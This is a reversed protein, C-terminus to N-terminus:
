ELALLTGVVNEGAIRELRVRGTKNALWASAAGGAVGGAAPGRPVVVRIYNDTLGPWFEAEPDEFLVRMERGLYGARWEHWRRKSFRRLLASRQQRVPVPVADGRRAAPTGERESYTFVHVYALPLTELFARTEEFEEATEGPFAVMVDTGLCLEPVAGTARRAFEAYQAATCPRRMDRLIRECGSQLPLHLHPLLPHAPSAMRELLADDVTTPEISGIRLREVGATDALADVVEALRRGGSNYTGINVGTLVLERVGRSVLSRAEALLDDFDRSRAPGRAKPILCFSCGFACGDQVKLSARKEFAGGGAFPIKFNSSATGAAAAGTGARKGTQGIVIRPVASKAGTGIHALLDQKADNGLILDVGAIRALAEAGTQSYCGVVAVFAAPSAAVVQRISQRCKAEALRTVSCTNIVALDAPAGFPVIEYGAAALQDRLLLTEAQNLRCGHTHLAARKRRGGGGGAASGSDDAVAVFPPEPFPAAPPTAPPKTQM